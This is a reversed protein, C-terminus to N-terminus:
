QDAEVRQLLPKSLRELDLVLTRYREAFFWAGHLSLTTKGVGGKENFVVLTKM